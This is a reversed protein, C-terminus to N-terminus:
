FVSFSQLHTYKITQKKAKEMMDTTIQTSHECLPKITNLVEVIGLLTNGSM